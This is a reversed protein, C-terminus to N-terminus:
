IPDIWTSNVTSLTVDHCPKSHMPKGRGTMMELPLPLTLYLQGQAKVLWWAMFAYQLLTPIAGSMGVHFAYIGKKFSSV